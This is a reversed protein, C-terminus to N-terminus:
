TELLLYSFISRGNWESGGFASYGQLLQFGLWVLLGYWALRALRKVMVSAGSQEVPNGGKSDRASYGEAFAIKVKDQIEPSAKDDTLLTGLKRDRDVVHVIPPNSVKEFVQMM